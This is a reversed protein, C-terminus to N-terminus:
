RNEQLCQQSVFMLLQPSQFAGASLIVEKRAELFFQKGATEVELGRARKGADFTIKTAMTRTYVKLSTYKLAEALFSTQSSSRYGTVPDITGPGWGSGEVRGSNFGISTPYIGLSKM